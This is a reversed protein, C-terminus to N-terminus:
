VVPTWEGKKWDNLWESEEICKDYLSTLSPAIGKAVNKVIKPLAGSDWGCSKKPNTKELAQQVDAQSFYKFEFKMGEYAERIAKVSNHDDHDEETLNNVHDGGISSAANTFYNALM